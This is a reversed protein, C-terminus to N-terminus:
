TSNEAHDSSSSARLAEPESATVRTFEARYVRLIDELSIVGQLLRFDARHVVPLFPSNGIRRLALYLPQDPHLTPLRTAAIISQVPLHGKGERAQLRLASKTVASWEGNGLSVLFFDAHSPEVRSLAEAVEDEGRLTPAVPPRMADEVRLPLQERQEEMSPLETGDQRSLMDFLPARQYRRSILYAITNTIMVPVIIAYNGSVELV